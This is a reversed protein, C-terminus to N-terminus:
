TLSSRRLEARLCAAIDSRHQELIGNDSLYHTLKELVRLRCETERAPSRLSHSFHQCYLAMPRPDYAFVVGRVLLRCWLDLDEAHTLTEDFTGHEQLIEAPFLFRHVITYMSFQVPLDSPWHDGDAPGERFPRNGFKPDHPRVIRYDCYAVVREPIRARILEVQRELKRPTIYDDADLFQIYRGRRKSLGVNRVVAPIGTHSQWYPRIRQDKRAFSQLLEFTGDTSGDDVVIVEFDQFTQHFCAGLSRPLFQIMNFTPVVISVEPIKM